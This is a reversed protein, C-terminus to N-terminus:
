VRRASGSDVETPRGSRVLDELSFDGSRFKAFWRQTKRVDL